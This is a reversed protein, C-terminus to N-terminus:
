RSRPRTESPLEDANGNESDDEQSSSAFSQAKSEVKHFEVLKAIYPDGWPLLDDSIRKGSRALHGEFIPEDPLAIM